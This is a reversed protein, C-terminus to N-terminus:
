LLVKAGFLHRRESQHKPFYGRDTAYSAYRLNLVFLRFEVGWTPYSEAMGLQVRALNSWGTEFGLVPKKTAPIPLNMDRFDFSGRVYYKGWSPTVSVGMNVSQPIPEPATSASSTDSRFFNIDGVNLIALGFTPKWIEIPTFLMGVDAGVGWGVHIRKRLNETIQDSKNIFTYIDGYEFAEGIFYRQRGILTGGIALKEGMFKRAYGVRGEVDTASEFDAISPNAGHISINAEERAMLAFGFRPMVFNPNIGVHFHNNEGLKDRFVNVMEEPKGGAGSASDMMDGINQTLETNVGGVINFIELSWGELRALGAPNYYLANQDDAVATFAQGMGAPRIGVFNAAPIHNGNGAYATSSFLTGVFVALLSMRSKKSM